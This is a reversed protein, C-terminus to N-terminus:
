NCVFADFNWLKYTKIIILQSNLVVRPRRLVQLKLEAAGATHLEVGREILDESVKPVNLVTLGEIRTECVAQVDADDTVCIRTECDM